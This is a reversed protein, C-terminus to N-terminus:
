CVRKEPKPVSDKASSKRKYVGLMLEMLCCCEWGVADWLLLMVHADCNGWLLKLGGARWTDTPGLQVQGEQRPFLNETNHIDEM